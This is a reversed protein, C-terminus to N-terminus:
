YFVWWVFNQQWDSKAHDYVDTYSYDEYVDWTKKTLRSQTFLHERQHTRKSDHLIIVSM